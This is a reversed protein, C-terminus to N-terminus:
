EYKPVLNDYNPNAKDGDVFVVKVGPGFWSEAMLDSVLHWKAVGNKCLLVMPIKHHHKLQQAGCSRGGGSARRPISWVDGEGNIQYAGGYGYVVTWQDALPPDESEHFGVEDDYEFAM